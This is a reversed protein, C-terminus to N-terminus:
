GGLTDSYFGLTKTSMVEKSYNSLAFTYAEQSMTKRLEINSSLLSLAALVSNKDASLSNGNKNLKVTLGHVRNTFINPVTGGQTFIPVVGFFMAELISLPLNESSSPMCFIHAASLIKEIHKRDQYGWFIINKNRYKTKLSSLIPGDGVVNFRLNNQKVKIFAELAEKIGKDKEIRGVYVIDTHINADKIKRLEEYSKPKFNVSHPILRIKNLYAKKYKGEVLRLQSDSLLIIGDTSNMADSEIAIIENHYTPIPNEVMMEYQKQLFHFTIVVKKVVGNQVLKKATLWSMWNHVHAIDFHERSQIIKNALREQWILYKNFDNFIEYKEDSLLEVDDNHSTTIINKHVGRSKSTTAVTVGVGMSDLIERLQAVHWGMGWLPNPLYDSTIQLVKM